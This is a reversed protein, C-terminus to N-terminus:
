VSALPRYRVPQDERLIQGFQAVESEFSTIGELRSRTSFLVIPESFGVPRRQRTSDRVHANYVIDYRDSKTRVLAVRYRFGSKKNQVNCVALTRNYKPPGSLGAETEAVRVTMEYHTSVSKVPLPSCNVLKQYFEV